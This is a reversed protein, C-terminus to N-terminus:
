TFKLGYEKVSMSGKRLNMFKKAKRERLKRPFFRDLFANGLDDCVIPAM